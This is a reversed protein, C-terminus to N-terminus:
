KCVPGHNNTDVITLTAMVGVYTMPISTGNQQPQQQKNSSKKSCDSFLQGIGDILGGASPALYSYDSLLKKRYWTIPEQEHEEETEIFPCCM